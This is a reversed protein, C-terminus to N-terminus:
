VTTQELIQLAYRLKRRDAFSRAASEVHLRSYADVPHAEQALATNQYDEIFKPSLRRTSGISGRRL